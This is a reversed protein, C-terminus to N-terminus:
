GIFWKDKNATKGASKEAVTKLEPDTDIISEPTTKKTQDGSLARVVSIFLLDKVQQEIPLDEYPVFCPHEKTEPNKVPGYKWGDAQKEALWNNHSDAPTSNPNSLHYNVGNIASQKQWAPAFQWLPQSNDGITQCYARNTEHCVQAILEVNM